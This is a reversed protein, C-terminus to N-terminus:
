ESVTQKPGIKFVDRMPAFSFKKLLKRLKIETTKLNTYHRFRSRASVDLRPQHSDLEWPHFYIIAPFGANNLKKISWETFWYPFLRLYGGGGVGINKGLIRITSPPIELIKRGDELEITHGFRPFDPSGYIDHNVPFVSSDYDFGLDCLIEWVWRDAPRISFSPARYGRVPIDIVKQIAELSKQTDARFEEPTLKYVLRHAFSHSGIEHGREYLHSVIEPFTEAVWGLIFFTAKVDYEDLIELTRVINSLIRTKQKPWSKLPFKDRFAEVCFWDEVDITIANQM